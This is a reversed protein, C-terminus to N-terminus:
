IGPITQNKQHSRLAYFGGLAALSAGVMAIIGIPSEPIVFFSHNQFTQNGDAILNDSADYFEAHFHYDAAEAGSGETFLSGPFTVSFCTHDASFGVGAPCAITSSTELTAIANDNNNNAVGPPILYCVMKVADASIIGGVCDTDVGNLGPNQATIQAGDQFARVKTSTDAAYSNSIMAPAALMVVAVISIIGLAFAGKDTSM